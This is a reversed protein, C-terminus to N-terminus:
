KKGKLSASNCLLDDDMNVVGYELCDGRCRVSYGVPDVFWTNPVDVFLTFSTMPSSFIRVIKTCAFICPIVLAVTFGSSMSSLAGEHFM